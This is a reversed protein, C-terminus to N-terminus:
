WKEFIGAPVTDLVQIPTMVGREGRSGALLIKGYRQYDSWPNIIKPQEDASKEYYAWQTVLRSKKDVWVNYRNDPTVGVGSFTLELVDAPMKQETEGGGAYKLTMGDDKLKFPMVLWYSDNIWVKKGMDLYKALSDPHTQEVSDLLVKGIGTDTNVIIKLPRNLWEIRCMGTQKDWLLTRRGFFNWSICRTEDWARRGGMAHMVEDAISVAKLDSDAKNFGPAPPNPDTPACASLALLLLWALPMIKHLIKM